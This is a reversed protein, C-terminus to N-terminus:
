HKPPLSSSLKSAEAIGLPEGAFDILTALYRAAYGIDDQLAKRAASPDHRRLAELAARHHDNLRLALDRDTFLNIFSPGIQLWLMEIIRLLTESRAARYITLHFARNAVLYAMATRRQLLQDMQEVLESLRMLEEASIRSAAREAAYGELVLRIESLDELRAWTLEPVLVSRNPRAELANEAVLRHLASRVPMSSTGLATALAQITMSQGPSLQGSVLAQRIRHYVRSQVPEGDSPLAGAGDSEGFAVVLENLAMKKAM